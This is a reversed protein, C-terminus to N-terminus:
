RLSNVREIASRRINRDNKKGTGRDRDEGHFVLQWRPSITDVAISVALEIAIFAGWLLAHLRM